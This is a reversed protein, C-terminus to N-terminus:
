LDDEETDGNPGGAPGDVAGGIPVGAVPPPMVGGTRLVEARQLDEASPEYPPRIGRNLGELHRVPDFTDALVPKIGGMGDSEPKKPARLTLVLDWGVFRLTEINRFSPREHIGANRKVWQELRWAREMDALAANMAREAAQRRQEAAERENALDGLWEDAHQEIAAIADQIFGDLAKNAADIQQDLTALLERRQEGSTVQPTSVDRGTRIALTMAEERARDETEFYEKLGVQTEAAQRRAALLRQHDTGLSDLWEIGSNTPLWKGTALVPAEDVLRLTTMDM